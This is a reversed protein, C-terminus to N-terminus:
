KINTGFETNLWKAADAQPMSWNSIQYAKYFKEQAPQSTM